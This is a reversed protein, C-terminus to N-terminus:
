VVTHSYQQQPLSRLECELVQHTQRSNWWVVEAIQYVSRGAINKQGYFKLMQMSSENYVAASLNRFKLNKEENFIYWFKNEKKLFLTTLPNSGPGIIM